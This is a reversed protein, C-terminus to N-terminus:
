EASATTEDTSSISIVLTNPDFLAVAGEPVIVPATLKGYFFPTGGTADAFLGFGNATEWEGTAKAWNIQYANTISRNSATSIVNPYALGKQSILVRGYGYGALETFVGNDAEPDNKSLGIYVSNPATLSATKSFVYNLIQNAYTSSFPM